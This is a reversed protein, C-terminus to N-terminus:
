KNEGQREKKKMEDKRKREKDEKSIKKVRGEIIRRM